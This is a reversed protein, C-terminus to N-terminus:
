KVALIPHPSIPNVTLTIAPLDLKANERGLAIATMKIVDESNERGTAVFILPKDTHKLLNFMLEVHRVKKDVDSPEVLIGGTLKLSDLQHTLKTLMIYDQLTGPRRGGEDIIFPHGHTPSLM